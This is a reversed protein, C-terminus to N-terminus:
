MGIDTVARWDWDWYSSMCGLRLPQGEWGMGIKTAVLGDWDRDTGMWGEGTAVREDRYIHSGVWGLIQSQGGM